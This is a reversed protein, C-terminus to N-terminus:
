SGRNKGAGGGILAHAIGAELGWIARKNEHHTHRPNKVLSPIEWFARGWHHKALSNGPNGLLPEML